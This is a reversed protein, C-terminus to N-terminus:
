ARHLLKCKKLLRQKDGTANKRASEAQGINEHAKVHFGPKLELAKEFTALKRGEMYFAPSCSPLQNAPRSMM